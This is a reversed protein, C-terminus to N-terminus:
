PGRLSRRYRVEVPQVGGFDDIQTAGDPVFGVAAYFARAAHNAEFVWAFLEDMDRALCFAEVEDVLARGIGARWAGPHVYLTYIEARGEAPLDADRLPGTHAFGVVADEADVAVLTPADPLAAAGLRSRWRGARDAVSLGALFAAPLIHAYAARWGAM